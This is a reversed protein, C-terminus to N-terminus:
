CLNQELEFDLNQRFIHEQIYHSHKSLLLTEQPQSRWITFVPRDLWFCPQTGTQYWCLMRLHWQEGVCALYIIIMWGYSTNSLNSGEGWSKKKKKCKFSSRTFRATHGTVWPMSALPERTWPRGQRHSNLRLWPLQTFGQKLILLLFLGSLRAWHYLAGRLHQPGPSGPTSARPEGTNCPIFLFANFFVFAESWRRLTFM